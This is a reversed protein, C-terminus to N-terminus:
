SVTALLAQCLGRGFRYWDAGLPPRGLTELELCKLELICAHIGYREYLGEGFSGPNQFAPNVRGERFGCFRELGQEFRDMREFYAEMGPRRFNPHLRGSNDNHLDVAFDPNKGAAIMRQIWGELAHNEPALAPDAPQDWNRNLDRGRLNFRSLGRAVGDKNAMPMLHLCVAERAAASDAALWADVLGEAVWNGGSEWPHARARVLVHAPADSRGVSVIELPRNEVTAGITEIRVAPHSRIRELSHELDSIRFPELRALYFSGAALTLELELQNGPAKRAIVTRWNRGDESIVCPTEPTVASGPRGNWVNDFNRLRLRVTDGPDAEIRFHWHLVARNPSDREHDYILEIEVTGDPAANWNLPSANEFGTDLYHFAM